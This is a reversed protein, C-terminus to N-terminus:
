FAFTIQNRWRTELNSSNTTDKGKKFQHNLETQYKLNHGTGLIFWTFSVTGEHIRDDSSLGTNEEYQDYRFAFSIYRKVAKIGVQGFFATYAEPDSSVSSVTPSSTDSKGHQYIFAGEFYLRWFTLGFDATFGIFDRTGAFALGQRPDRKPSYYVSAGLTYRTKGDFYAEGNKWPTMPDLQLRVLFDFQNNTESPSVRFGNVGNETGGAGNMVGVWYHLKKDFFSGDILLGIDMIVANYRSAEARDIFLLKRNSSFIERVFPVDMIGFLSRFHVSPKLMVYAAGLIGEGNGSIANEGYINILYEVMPTFEGNIDLWVRRLAISNRKQSSSDLGKSMNYDHRVQIRGNVNVTPTPDKEESFGNLSLVLLFFITLCAKKGMVNDQLINELDGPM